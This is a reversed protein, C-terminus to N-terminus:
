REVAEDSYIDVADRASPRRCGCPAPTQGAIIRTQRHSAAFSDLAMGAKAPHAELPGRMRLAPLAAHTFIFPPRPVHQTGRRLFASRKRPPASPARAAVSAACRLSSSTRGICADEVDHLLPRRRRWGRRVNLADSGRTTPGRRASALPLAWRVAGHVAATSNIPRSSGDTARAGGALGLAAFREDGGAGCRTFLLIAM